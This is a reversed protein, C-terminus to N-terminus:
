ASPKLLQSLSGLKYTVKGDDFVSIELPNKLGGLTLSVTGRDTDSSIEIDQIPKNMVMKKLRDEEATKAGPDEEPPAESDPGEPGTVDLDTEPRDVKEPEPTPGQTAAMEAGDPKPDSAPTPEPEEPKKAKKKEPKEDDAESVRRGKPKKSM